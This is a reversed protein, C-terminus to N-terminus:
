SLLQLPISWLQGELDVVLFPLLFIDRRAFSLPLFENGPAGGEKGSFRLFPLMIQIGRLLLPRAFFFREMKRGERGRAFM